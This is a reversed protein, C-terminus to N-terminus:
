KKKKIPKTELLHKIVEEFSFGYLNPVSKRKTKHHQEKKHSKRHKEEM